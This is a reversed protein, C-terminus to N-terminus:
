ARGTNLLIKFTNGEGSWSNFIEKSLLKILEQNKEEYIYNILMKMWDDYKAVTSNVEGEFFIDYLKENENYINSELNFTEKFKEPSSFDIIEEKGEFNIVLKENSKIAVEILNEEDVVISTGDIAKYTFWQRESISTRDSEIFTLEGKEILSKDYDEYEHYQKIKEERYEIQREESLFYWEFEFQNELHLSNWEHQMTSELGSPDADTKIFETDDFTIGSDIVICKVGNKKTESIVRKLKLKIKNEFEEAEEKSLYVSGNDDVTWDTEEKGESPNYFYVERDVGRANTPLVVYHTFRESLVNIQVLKDLGNAAGFHEQWEEEDEQSAEEKSSLSLEEELIMDGDVEWAEVKIEIKQKAIGLADEPSNAEIETITQDYGNIFVNYKKTAM